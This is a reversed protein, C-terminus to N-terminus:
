FVLFALQKQVCNANAFFVRKKAPRKDPAKEAAKALRKDAKMVSSVYNLAASDNSVAALVVEVDDRLASCAFRLSKGANKVAALVVERDCQLAGVAFELAEGHKRVSALVCDKDAKIDSSANIFMHYAGYRQKNELETLFAIKNETSRMEAAEATAIVEKDAKLRSSAHVIAKGDNKVAALVIERDRKLESRVFKLSQGYNSVATLAVERDARLNRPVFQLIQGNLAVLLLICDRDEQISRNDEFLSGAFDFDSVAMATLFAKKVEMREADSDVNSNRLAAQPDGESFAEPLHEEMAQVDPAADPEQMGMAPPLHPEQKKDAKKRGATRLALSVARGLASVRQSCSV